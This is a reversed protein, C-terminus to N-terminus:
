KLMVKQKSLIKKLLHNTPSADLTKLSELSESLVLWTFKEGVGCEGDANLKAVHGRLEITGVHAVANFKDRGIGTILTTEHTSQSVFSLNPAGIKIIVRESPHIWEKQDISLRGNDVEKRVLDILNEDITMTMYASKAAADITIGAYLGVDIREINQLQFTQTIMKKNGYVQASATHFIFVAVTILTYRM